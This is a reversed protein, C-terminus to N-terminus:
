DSDEGAFHVSWEDGTADNEDDGEEDPKEESSFKDEGDVDDKTRLWELRKYCFIGDSQLFHVKKKNKKHQMVISFKGDFQSVREGWIKVALDEEDLVVVTKDSGERTPRTNSLTYFAQSVRAFQDIPFLVDPPKGSLLPYLQQM